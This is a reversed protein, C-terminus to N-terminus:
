LHQVQKMPRATDNSSIGGHLPSASVCNLFGGAMKCTRLLLRIDQWVASRKAVPDSLRETFTIFEEPNTSLLSIRDGFELDLTEGADHIVFVM